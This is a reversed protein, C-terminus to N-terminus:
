RYRDAELYYRGEETRRLTGIVTVRDGSRLNSSPPAGVAYLATGGDEIVWATGRVPASRYGSPNAGRYTGSM